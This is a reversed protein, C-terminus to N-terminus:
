LLHQLLFFDIDNEYKMRSICILKTTLDFEISFSQLFPLAIWEKKKEMLLLGGTFGKKNSLLKVHQHQIITMLQHALFKSHMQTLQLVEGHKTPKLNTPMRALGNAITMEQITQPQQLAFADNGWTVSSNTM